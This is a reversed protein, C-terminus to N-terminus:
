RYRETDIRVEGEPYKVVVAVRKGGSIDEITVEKTFGPIDIPETYSTLDEINQLKLKELESDVLFIAQIRHDVYRSTSLNIMSFLCLMIVSCLALSM